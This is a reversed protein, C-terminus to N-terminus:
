LTLVQLLQPISSGVMQYKCMDKNFARWGSPPSPPCLLPIVHKGAEVLSEYKKYLYSGDVDVVPVDRQTQEVRYYYILVFTVTLLIYHNPRSYFTSYRLEM